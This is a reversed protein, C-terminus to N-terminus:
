IVGSASINLRASHKRVGCSDAPVEIVGLSDTEKRMSAMKIEGTNATDVRQTEWNSRDIFQSLGCPTWDPERGTSGNM